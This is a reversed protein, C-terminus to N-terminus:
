GGCCLLIRRLRRLSGGLDSASPPCRLCAYTTTEIPRNVASVCGPRKKKVNPEPARIHRPLLLHEDQRLAEFSQQVCPRCVDTPHFHGLQNGSQEKVVIQLECVLIGFPRLCAQSNGQRHHSKGLMSVHQAAPEHHLLTDIHPEDLASHWRLPLQCRQRSQCMQSRVSLPLLSTDLHCEHQTPQRAPKALCPASDASVRVGLPLSIDVISSQEIEFMHLSADPM